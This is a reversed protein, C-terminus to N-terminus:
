ISFLVVFSITCNTWRYSTDMTGVDVNEGPVVLSCIAVKQYPDLCLPPHLKRKNCEKADCSM